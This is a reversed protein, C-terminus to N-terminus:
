ADQSEEDLLMKSVNVHLVIHDRTVNVKKAVFDEILRYAPGSLAFM